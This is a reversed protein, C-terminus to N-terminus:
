QSSNNLTALCHACAKSSPRIFTSTPVGLVTMGIWFSTFVGVKNYNQRPKLLSQENRTVRSSRLSRRNWMYKSKQLPLNNKFKQCTTTMFNRFAIVKGSFKRIKQSPVHPVLLTWQIAKLKQTYIPFACEVLWHIITHSIVKTPEPQLVSVICWNRQEQKQL